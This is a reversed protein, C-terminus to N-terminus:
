AKSKKLAKKRPDVPCATMCGAGCICTAPTHESSGILTKVLLDQVAQDKKEMATTLLRGEAANTLFCKVMDFSRDEGTAGAPCKEVCANCETCLDEEILPDPELKATTIVGGFIVGPGFEKTLLLSNTGVTGLGAAQGAWNLALEGDTEFNHIPYPVGGLADFMKNFISKGVSLGGVCISRFGEAELDLALNWAIEDTVGGMLLGHLRTWYHSPLTELVGRPIPVGVLIVSQADEMTTTPRAYDPAQDFRDVSALGVIAAGHKKANEVVQRRDM